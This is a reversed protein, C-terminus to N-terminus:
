RRGGRMDLVPPPGRLEGAPNASIPLGAEPEAEDLDEGAARPPPPARQLPLPLPGGGFAAGSVSSSGSTYLGSPIAGLAAPAPEPEDGFDAFDVRSAARRADPAALSPPAAAARPALAPEAEEGFNASLQASFLMGAAAPLLDDSLVRAGEGPDSPRAPRPVRPPASWEPVIGQMAPEEEELSGAPDEPLAVLVFDAEVRGGEYTRGQYTVSSAAEAPAPKLSPM